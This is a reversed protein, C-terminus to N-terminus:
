SVYISETDPESVRVGTYGVALISIDVRCGTDNLRKYEALHDVCIAIMCQLRLDLGQLCACDGIRM